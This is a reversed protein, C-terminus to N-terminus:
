TKAQGTASLAIRCNGSCCIVRALVGVGVHRDQRMEVSLWPLCSRRGGQREAGDVAKALAKEDTCLPCFSLCRSSFEREAKVTARTSRSDKQDTHTFVDLEEPFGRSLRTGDRLLFRAVNM